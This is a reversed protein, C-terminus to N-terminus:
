KSLCCSGGQQQQQEAVTVNQPTRWLEKLVVVMLQNPPKNPNLMTSNYMMEM